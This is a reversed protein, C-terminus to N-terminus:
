TMYMTAGFSQSLDNLGASLEKSLTFRVSSGRFTRIPPRARDTPLELMSMGSLRQKWYALNSEITEKQKQQHQWLAFDVYQMPLEKLSASTGRQIAKNLIRLEPVIIRFISWGDAIAHHITVDLRHDTDSMRMLLARVLPPRSLQFPRCAEETALRNAEVERNQGELDRLDAFMLPVTSSEYIRQVTGDEQFSFATRLIAHRRALLNFAEQLSEQDVSCGIRLTFVVNYVPVDGALQCDLLIEQQVLSIPVAKQHEYRHSKLIPTAPSIVEDVLSQILHEHPPAALIV